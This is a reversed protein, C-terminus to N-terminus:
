RRRKRTVPKGQRGSATLIALKAGFVRRFLQGEHAVDWLELDAPGTTILHMAVRGGSERARLKSM